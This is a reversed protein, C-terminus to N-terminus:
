IGVPLAILLTVVFTISMLQLTYPLRAAIEVLVPRRTVFSTGWDGVVLKRAWNFYRIHIPQNLGLQAELRAADASSINPNGEYMSGVGGPALSILGFVVMSILILLPIAGVLRRII